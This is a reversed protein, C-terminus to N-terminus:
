VVEVEAPFSVWLGHVNCYGFGRLAAKGKENIRITFLAKPAGEVARFKANAVELKNVWLAVSEIHHNITNPHPHYHGVEVFVDFWEGVKVKKPVKVFPTHAEGLVTKIDPGLVPIDRNNVAAIAPISGMLLAGTSLLATKMFKRREM